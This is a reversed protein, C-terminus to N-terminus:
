HLFEKLIYEAPVKLLATVDHPSFSGNATVVLEKAAPNLLSLPLGLRPPNTLYIRAVWGNKKFNQAGLQGLGLTTVGNCGQVQDTYQGVLKFEDSPAMIQTDVFQLLKELLDMEEPSYAELQGALDDLTGEDQSRLRANIIDAIKGLNAQKGQMSVVPLPEVPLLEQKEETASVDPFAARNLRPQFRACLADEETAYLSVTQGFLDIHEANRALVSITMEPKQLVEMLASANKRGAGSNVFGGQHQASRRAVGKGAKGVYLVEVAQAGPAHAVWIYVSPADSLKLGKIAAFRPLGSQDLTIQHSTFFGLNHLDELSVTM